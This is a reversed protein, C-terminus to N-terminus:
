INPTGGVARRALGNMSWMRVKEMTSLLIQNLFKWIISFSGILGLPGGSVESTSIPGLNTNVGILINSPANPPAVTNELGPSNSNIQDTSRFALLQM